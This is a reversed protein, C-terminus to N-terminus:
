EGICTKVFERLLAYVADPKMKYDMDGNVIERAKDDYARTTDYDQKANKSAITSYGTSILVGCADYYDCAWGEARTSYAIPSLYNLLHQANCYPISIIHYYNDKMEKKTAKFKM